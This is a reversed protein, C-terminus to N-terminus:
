QGIHAAVQRFPRTVVLAAPLDHGVDDVAVDVVGVDAVNVALEARKVPGLFVFVVVHQAPLLEILLQVFKGGRATNLNEHLAPVVRLQREIPIEFQEAVDAFFIRMNIDVAETRGLQLMKRMEEAQRQAFHDACNLSAPNPEIGPPPPSIRTSRTRSRIEGSLHLESAHSSTICVACSSPKFDLAVM